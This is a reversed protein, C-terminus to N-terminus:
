PPPPETTLLRPKSRTHGWAVQSGRVTGFVPFGCGWREGSVYSIGLFGDTDRSGRARGGFPSFHLRNGPQFSLPKQSLLFLPWSPPFVSVATFTNQSPLDPRPQLPQSFGALFSSVPCSPQAADFSPPRHSTISSFHSCICLLCLYPWFCFHDATPTSPM